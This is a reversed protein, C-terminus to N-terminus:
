AFDRVWCGQIKVGDVGAEVVSGSGLDSATFRVQMQNTPAVVDGLNFQKFYWGGQAEIGSPGVTELNTWTSGGNNSVEVVFTDALPSAGTHNSYWRYYSVIAEQGSGTSADFVPSTAITSGGDVDSNGDVNDTLLCRGSGDGDTPPDGRDGGGVPIGISWQGDTADGSGTWGTSSEFDDDFPTAVLVGSIISYTVDPAGRPSLQTNGEDDMASIYYRLVTGCDTAPFNAEYVNPSVETMPYSQFGSGSDVHLTGTGSQPNTAGPEAEVTFAAGGGPSVFEPRGNPFSFVLLDIDPPDMNHASFGADIESYHPTGNFINADDDDVVLYMEAISPEITGNGPELQGRIITMGLLLQASIDQFDNPETVKLEQMTDWVCGSILQGCFHGSGNNTCPYQISNDANRIGANCNGQFGHGLIPDDEIIVGVCDSYGEGYQSQGNGSTNVIHHGYEHYVVDAFSTNNCGSGSTFFNISVGNYFANCSDNINTNVDFGTQNAIVPFNPEYQVVWDRVINSHYYANVNATITESASNPNHLFNAPGPPTVVTTLQPINGGNAQDFVQFYTGSLRSRVTVNATGSHPINFNGNADAFSTNGGIVAVEAYPLNVSTEPDCEAARITLTSRGSVNGQVDVNHIQTEAHLINGTEVSAVIM